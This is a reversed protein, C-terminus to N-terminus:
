PRELLYWEDNIRLVEVYGAVPLYGAHAILMDCCFPDSSVVLVPALWFQASYRVERSDNAPELIGIQEDHIYPIVSKLANLPPTIVPKSILIFCATAFVLLYLLHFIKKSNINKLNMILFIGCLDTTPFSMASNKGNCALVFIETRRLVVHTQKRLASTEPIKQANVLVRM